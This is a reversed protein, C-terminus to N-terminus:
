PNRWIAHSISSRHGHHGRHSLRHLQVPLAYVLPAMTAPVTPPIFTTLQAAAAEADEADTVLILRGGRAAVGLM